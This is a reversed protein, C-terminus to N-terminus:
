EQEADADDRWRITANVALHDSVGAAISRASTPEFHPSLLVFDIRFMPRRQHYTLGFGSGASAFADILNNGIKWYSWNHATANFDGVVIYPLAESEIMARVQQAQWARHLVAYRYERWYRYWVRPSFRSETSEHWPKSTGYSALHINYVVFKRGQWSIVSRLVGLIDPDRPGSPKREYEVIDNPLTTVVVQEAGFSHEVNPKLDYGLEALRSVDRRGKSEKPGLRYLWYSEQLCVIEADTEKVLEYLRDHGNEVRDVREVPINFSLLSFDTDPNYGSGSSVLPSLFRAAGLVLLLIAFLKSLSGGRMIKWAAVPIMAVTAYPLVIAVLQIWWIRPAPEIYRGLYGILFLSTILTSLLTLSWRLPGRSRRRGRRESRAPRM